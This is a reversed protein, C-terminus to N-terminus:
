VQINFIAYLLLSAGIVAAFRVANEALWNALSFYGDVLHTDDRVLRDGFYKAIAKNAQRLNHRMEARQDETLQKKGSNHEALAMCAEDISEMLKRNAEVDNIVVVGVKRHM